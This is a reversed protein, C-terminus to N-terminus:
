NRAEVRYLQLARGVLPADGAEVGLGRHSLAELNTNQFERLFEALRRLLNM